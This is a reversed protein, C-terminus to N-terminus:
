EGSSSIIEIIQPTVRQQMAQLDSGMNTMVSQMMLPMKTMVSAGHESSYFTILAQLEDESFSTAMTDQMLAELKPKFGQMEGSMLTGLDNWQKETLEISAPMSLKMQSIMSDKSFMDDMMQQVEPMQTYAQALDAASQAQVSTAFLPLCLALTRSITRM